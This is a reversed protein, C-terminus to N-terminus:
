LLLSKGTEPSILVGNPEATKVWLKSTDEPPTDGYAINLEVGGGKSKGTNFGLAFSPWDAKFANEAM